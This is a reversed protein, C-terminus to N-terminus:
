VRYLTPSWGTGWAIGQNNLSLIIFSMFLIKRLLWTARQEKDIWWPKPKHLYALLVQIDQATFFRVSLLFAIFKV